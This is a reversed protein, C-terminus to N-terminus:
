FILKSGVEENGRRWYIKPAPNGTAECRLTAVSGEEASVRTEGDVIKPATGGRTPPRTTVPPLYSDVATSGVSMCSRGCGNFCCKNDGQCDADSRCDEECNARGGQTRQVVPCRGEKTVPRCTPQVRTIADSSSGSEERVLEAQCQTGDPCSYGRCPEYCRCEDCGSNAM